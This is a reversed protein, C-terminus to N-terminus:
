IMKYFYKNHITSPKVCSGKARLIPRGGGVKDVHFLDNDNDNDNFFLGPSLVGGQRTGQYLEYTRATSGGIYVFKKM